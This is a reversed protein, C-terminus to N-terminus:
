EPPFALFQPLSLYAWQTPFKSHVHGHLRRRGFADSTALNNFNNFLYYQHNKRPTLHVPYKKCTPDSIIAPSESAEKMSHQHYMPHNSSRRHISQQHEVVQSHTFYFTFCKHDKLSWSNEHIHDFTKHSTWSEWLLYHPNFGVM